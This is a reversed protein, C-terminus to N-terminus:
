GKGETTVKEEKCEHSSVCDMFTEEELTVDEIKIINLNAVQSGQSVNENEETYDEEYARSSTEPTEEKISKDKGPELIAAPHADNRRM